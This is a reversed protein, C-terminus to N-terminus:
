QARGILVLRQYTAPNNFSVPMVKDRKSSFRVKQPEDGENAAPTVKQAVVSLGIEYGDAFGGEFFSAPIAIDGSYGQDTKKWAAKIQQQYNALREPLSSKNIHFQPAIGSFNGPSLLLTFADAGATTAYYNKRYVTEITLAVMDGAAINAAPSAGGNAAPNTAEPPQYIEPDTIDVGVYLYQPDWGLAFRGALNGAAAPTSQAVAGNRLSPMPQLTYTKGSVWKAFDGDLTPPTPLASATLADYEENWQLKGDPLHKFAPDAALADVRQQTNQVFPALEATLKDFGARSNIDRLATEMASLPGKMPSLDIPLRSATWLPKFVNDQWGYNGYTELLPALLHPAEPGYQAVLAHKQAEPASYAQPNWLYSAITALPIMSAHAENMPNSVLGRVATNLHPDRGVLPGLFPRWRQYDNVPYNDWILPPRHQMRGWEHAQAVTIEPPVVKVGTWMLDVHPDVGAGLERLYDLHGFANTYITPTVVLHNQPSLPVLHHYLKNIIYTHADALSKFRAIDAPNQLEEPVDDLFLAFCSVGLKGVDDLKGTLKGFDEESSYVMSLGPSVAFCFDVFNAHAAQVLEGLQAMRDAPYPDRWHERHYPDDKPAYYYANMAHAGEFRLLDLRDLHSWPTGYFGEVIGRVAFSPFDSVVAFTRGGAKTVWVDKPKPYLENGSGPVGHLLQPLRILANHFGQPRLAKITIEHPGPEGARHRYTASLVLGQHLEEESPKITLHKFSRRFATPDDEKALEIILAPLRKRAHVLSPFVTVSAGHQSALEEVEAQIRSDVPERSVLAWIVEGSSKSQAAAQSPATQAPSESTTLAVVLAPTAASVLLCLLLLRM